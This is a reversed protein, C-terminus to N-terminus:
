QKIIKVTEGQINVFYIGKQFHAINVIEDPIITQQLVIKGTIDTIRLPTNEAIASIRFSESVPNPFVTVNSQKDYVPSISNVTRPSYYYHTISYAEWAYAVSRWAYDVFLTENNNADYEFEYKATGEWRNRNWNWDYRVFLTCNNNVDYESEM